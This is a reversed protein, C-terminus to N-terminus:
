AINYKAVSGEIFLHLTFVKGQYDNFYIDKSDDVNDELLNPMTLSKIIPVVGKTADQEDKAELQKADKIERGGTYYMWGDSSKYLDNEVCNNINFLKDGIKAFVQFRAYYGKSMENNHINVDEFDHTTDAKIFQTGLYIYGENIVSREGQKVEIDIESVEVSIKITDSAVLWSNTQGLFNFVAVFILLLTIAVLMINLKSVKTKM